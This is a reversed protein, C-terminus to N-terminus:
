GRNRASVAAHGLQNVLTTLKDAYLQEGLDELSCQAQEVCEMAITLHNEADSWLQARNYAEVEQESSNM